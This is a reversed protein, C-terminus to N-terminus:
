KWSIHGIRIRRCSNKEQRWFSPSSLELKRSLSRARASSPSTMPIFNSSMMHKWYMWPTRSLSRIFSRLATFTGLRTFNLRRMSASICALIVTLFMDLIIGVDEKWVGELKFFLPLKGDVSWKKEIQLPSSADSSRWPCINWTRSWQVYAVQM